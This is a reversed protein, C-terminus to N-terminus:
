STTTDVISMVCTLLTIASLLYINTWKKRSPWNLPNEPDDPGDWDIVNPDTTQRVTVAVDQDEHTSLAKELDSPEVHSGSRTTSLSSPGTTVPEIDPRKEDLAM